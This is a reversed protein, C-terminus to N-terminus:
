IAEAVIAVIQLTVFGLAAWLPWNLPIGKNLKDAVAQADRVNHYVAWQPAGHYDPLEPDLMWRGCGCRRYTWDANLRDRREIVWLESRVETMLDPVNPDDDSPVMKFLWPHNISFIYPSM